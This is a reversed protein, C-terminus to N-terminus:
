GVRMLKVKSRWIAYWNIQTALVCHLGTQRCHLRTNECAFPWLPASHWGTISQKLWRAGTTVILGNWRPRMTPRRSAPHVYRHIRCMNCHILPTDSSGATTQPVNGCRYVLIQVAMYYLHVDLDIYQTLPLPRMWPLFRPVHQVQQTVVSWQSGDAQLLVWIVHAQPWAVM